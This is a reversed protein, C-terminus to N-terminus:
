RPGPRSGSGSAAAASITIPMMERRQRGVVTDELLGVGQTYMAPWQDRPTAIVKEFLPLAQDYRGADRFTKAMAMWHEVGDAQAVVAPQVGVPPLPLLRRIRSEGERAAAADHPDTPETQERVLRVSERVGEARLHDTVVNAAITFLWTVVRARGASYGGDRAARFLRLFAEQTLDEAKHPDAIRRRIHRFLRVKHRAVLEDFGSLDGRAVRALAAADADHTPL